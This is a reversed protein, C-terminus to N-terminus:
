KAGHKQLLDAIESRSNDRALTLPTRGQVDKLNIDAGHELLLEVIGKHGETAAKHLASGMDETERPDTPHEVGMEDIELEEGLEVLFKVVDLQGREAAVVLANSGKLKAGHELLLKVVDVKGNEATGALITKYEDIVKGSNPNAGHELCFKTWEYNGYTAAMALATGFWPVSYDIDVAKAEILVKHTKFTNGSVISRMIDENVTAGQDLCWSVIQARDRSTAVLMILDIPPAYSADLSKQDAIFSEVADLDGDCCARYLEEGLKSKREAEM